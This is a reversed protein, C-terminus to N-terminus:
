IVLCKAVKRQLRCGLKVVLPRQGPALATGRRSLSASWGAELRPSSQVKLWATLAQGVGKCDNFPPLTSSLDKRGRRIPGPDPNIVKSGAM